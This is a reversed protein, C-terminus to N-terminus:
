RHSRRVTVMANLLAVEIEPDVYGEILAESVNITMNARAIGTASASFSIDSVQIEVDDIFVKGRSPSVMEIRLKHM